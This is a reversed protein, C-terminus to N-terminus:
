KADALKCTHDMFRDKSIKEEEIYIRKRDRM